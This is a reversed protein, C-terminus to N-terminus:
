QRETDDGQADRQERALWAVVAMLFAGALVVPAWGPLLGAPDIPVTATDPAAAFIAIVEEFTRPVDPAYYSQYFPQPGWAVEVFAADLEEGLFSIGRAFVLRQGPEARFGDRCLSTVPDAIVVTMGAPGALASDIRGKLRRDVHITYTVHVRGERREEDVRQVTGLFAFDAERVAERFLYGVTSCAAAPAPLALLLVAVAAMVELLRMPRM